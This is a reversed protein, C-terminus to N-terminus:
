DHSEALRDAAITHTDNPNKLGVHIHFNEPVTKWAARLAQAVLQLITDDDYRSNHNAKIVMCNHMHSYAHVQGGFAGRSGHPHWLEVSRYLDTDIEEVTLALDM